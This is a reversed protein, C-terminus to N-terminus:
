SSSETLLEFFVALQNDAKAGNQEPRPKREQRPLRLTDKNLAIKAEPAGSMARRRPGQLESLREREAKLAEALALHRNLDYTWHGSQGRRRESRIAKRLLAIIRGTGTKSYDRLESPWLGLLKPLQAERSFRPLAMGRRTSLYLGTHRPIPYSSNM